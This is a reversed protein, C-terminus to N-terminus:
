ASRRARREGQVHAEGPVHGERHAHAGTSAREGAGRTLLRRAVAAALVVLAGIVAAIAVIDSAPEGTFRAVALWSLGWALALAPTLRGRSAVATAVGIAAAVAVVAVGWIEADIGFGRFGADTLWASVNAATAITVWGLYLGLTGDLVVSEVIREWRSVDDKPTRLVLRFTVCLVALLVVIVLVSGGVSGLQVVGIWAANLLMSAAMLYGVRRHVARAAQSPLLQWVAYAFLGLYIVSWISFAPGAPAILTSDSSLAGGAADQIPTGGLAGSGLFAGAIALLSLILVIIQRVRDSPRVSHTM